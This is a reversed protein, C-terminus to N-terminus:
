DSPLTSGSLSSFKDLVNNPLDLFIEWCSTKSFDSFSGAQNCGSIPHFGLLAKCVSRALNEYIKRLVLERNITKFITSSSLKDFYHLLILLVDTDSCFVVLESFPDRKSIDLAHLVIGTGAEEHNYNRLNDDLDVINTLVTKDFVVVYDKVFHQSLKLSLYQTLEKKAEISSLFDKTKLHDIKTADSVKYHVASYGKTRTARTGGKLSKEQYHDFVICEGHYM